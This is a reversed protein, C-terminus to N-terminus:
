HEDDTMEAASFDLEDEIGDEQEEDWDSPKNANFEMRKDYQFAEDNPTVQNKEFSKNMAEKAALLHEPPVKNLDLDDFDLEGDRGPQVDPRDFMQRVLDAVQQEEIVDVYRAHRSRLFTLADEERTVNAPFTVQHIRTRRHKNDTYVLAFTPPTFRIAVKLPIIRPGTLNATALPPVKKLAPLPPLGGAVAGRGLSPLAPLAGLASM